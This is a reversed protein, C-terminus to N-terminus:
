PQGKRPTKKESVAEGGVRGTQHVREGEQAYTKTQIGSHPLSVELYLLKKLGKGLALKNTTYNDSSIAGGRSGPRGQRYRPEGVRGLVRPSNKPAEKEHGSLFVGERVASEGRELSSAHGGKEQLPVSVVVTKHKRRHILGRM